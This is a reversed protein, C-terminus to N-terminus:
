AHKKCDDSHKLYLICNWVELAIGIPEKLIWSVFTIRKEQVGCDMPKKLNWTAHVPSVRDLDMAHCGNFM